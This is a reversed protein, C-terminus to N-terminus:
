YQINGQIESQFIFFNSLDIKCDLISLRNPEQTGRLFVFHMMLFVM